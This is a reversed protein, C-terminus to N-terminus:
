PEVKNLFSHLLPFFRFARISTSPNNKNQKVSSQPLKCGNALFINTCPTQRAKVSGFELELVIMMGANRVTGMGM